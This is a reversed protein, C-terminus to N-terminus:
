RVIGKRLAILRFFQRGVPRTKVIRAPGTLEANVIATDIATDIPFWTVLDSSEEILYDVDPDRQWTLAAAEDVLNIRLANADVPLGGIVSVAGVSAECGVATLKPVGDVLTVEVWGRVIGQLTEVSVGIYTRDWQDFAGRVVEGGLGDAEVRLFEAYVLVDPSFILQQPVSGPLRDGASYLGRFRSHLLLFNQGDEGGYHIHTFGVLRMTTVEVGDQAHRLADIEFDALGDGNLDITQGEAVPLPPDFVQLVPSALVTRASFVCLAAIIPSITGYLYCRV